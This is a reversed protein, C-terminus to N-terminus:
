NVITRFTLSIRAETIKKSLPLQHLWFQQTQSKMVLLSGRELLCEVKIPSTKHKFSFRREAGLSLVAIAGNKKLDPEGDSHWSVGEQGNHYYNLLCSNYTDGSVQQIIEKIEKLLETWPAAVKQSNSYRYRFPQDGYWAVQRKTLIRKGLIIVEDSKWAIETSLLKFYEQARVHNLIRGYYNVSGDIPLLNDNPNFIPNFLDMTESNM